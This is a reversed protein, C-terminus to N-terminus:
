LFTYTIHETWGSTYVPLKEDFKVFEVARFLAVEFLTEKKSVKISLNFNNHLRNSFVYLKKM